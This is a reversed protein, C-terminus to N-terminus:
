PHGFVARSNTSLHIQWREGAQGACKCLHDRFSSWSGSKDVSQHKAEAKLWHQPPQIGSSRINGRKTSRLEYLPAVFQPPSILPLEHGRGPPFFDPIIPPGLMNFIYKSYIMIRSLIAYYLVLIICIFVICRWSGYYSLLIIHYAFNWILIM